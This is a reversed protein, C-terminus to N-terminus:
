DDPPATDRAPQKPLFAAPIITFVVLVVAIV